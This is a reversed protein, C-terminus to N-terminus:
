KSLTKNLLYRQFLDRVLHILMNDVEDSIFNKKLVTAYLAIGVEENSTKFDM